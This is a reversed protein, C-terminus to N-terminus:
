MVVNGNVRIQIGRKRKHLYRHFVLALNEILPSVRQRMAESPDVADGLLLDLNTWIVLTGSDQNELRNAWPAEAIESPSLHLLSWRETQRIHDIDWRLGTTTGERKTIVTLCRAQSLSATKLGLGFRGLDTNAREGVSGALRLAEIAAHPAMGIGDDLIAIHTAATPELDIEIHRAGASISNDVLDALAAELSYGVSRMSELLNVGPAVDLEEM